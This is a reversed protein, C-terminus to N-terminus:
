LQTYVTGFIYIMSECARRSTRSRMVYCMCSCWIQPMAFSLCFIFHISTSNIKSRLNYVSITFLNIWIDLGGIVNSVWKDVDHVYTHSIRLHYQITHYSSVSTSYYIHMPLCTPNKTENSVTTQICFHLSLMAAFATNNNNNNNNMNAM